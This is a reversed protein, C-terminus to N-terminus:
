QNVDISVSAITFSFYFSVSWSQLLMGCHKHSQAAWDTTAHVIIVLMKYTLTCLWSLRPNLHSSIVTGNPTYEGTILGSFMSYNFILSPLQDVVIEKILQVIDCVSGDHLIIDNMVLYTLVCVTAIM